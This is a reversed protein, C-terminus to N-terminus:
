EINKEMVVADEKPQDYYNKRIRVPSFGYKRYLSIAADGTKRVELFVTKVGNEKAWLLAANMLMDAIGQRRVSKGVAIQLLEAEDLIRRLMVFGLVKGMHVALSFFSDENYIESLLGGHSWPPTISYQEIELIQPM